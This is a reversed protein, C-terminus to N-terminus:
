NFMAELQDGLSSSSVIGDKDVSFEFTGDDHGFVARVSGVLDMLDLPSHVRLIVDEIVSILFGSGVHDVIELGSVTDLNLSQGLRQKFDTLLPLVDIKRWFEAGKNTDWGLNSLVLSDHGINSLTEELLRWFSNSGDLLEVLHDSLGLLDLLPVEVDLNVWVCNLGLNQFSRSDVFFSRLSNKLVGLDKSSDDFLRNVESLPSDETELFINRVSFVQVVPEVFQGLLSFEVNINIVSIDNLEGVLGSDLCELIGDIIVVTDVNATLIGVTSLSGHWGM